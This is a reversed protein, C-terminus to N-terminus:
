VLDKKKKKKKKKKQEWIKQNLDESRQQSLILIKISWLKVQIQFRSKYIKLFFFSKM